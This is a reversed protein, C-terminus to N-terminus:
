SLQHVTFVVPYAIGCLPSSSAEGATDQFVKWRTQTLGGIEDWLRQFSDQDHIYAVGDAAAARVPSSTGAHKGYVVANKTGPKLFRVLREGIRVQQAWTFLHFFSAAHIMSITNDLRDLRRDAPDLMDGNVFTAGLTRQDQFLAYGIDIFRSELDLGFLQSGLVGDARFQRLTQGLGCGLDLLADRSTPLTLRFLVQRYM